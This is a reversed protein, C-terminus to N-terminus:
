ADQAVRAAGEADGALLRAEFAAGVRRTLEPDGPRPPQAVPSLLYARETTDLTPRRTPAPAGASACGAALLALLAVLLRSALPDSSRHPRPGSRRSRMSTSWSRRAM